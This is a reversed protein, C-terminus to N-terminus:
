YIKKIMELLESIDGNEIITLPVNLMISINKAHELEIKQMEDLKFTDYVLHDRELLRKAIENPQNVVVCLHVPNIKQFVEKSIKTIIFDQDFLSFHGDIIYNSDTLQNMGRILREQTDTIDQVAKNGPISSVENWRLLSSASITKIKTEVEIKDCVTGKGVGHIGGIFLIKKVAQEM